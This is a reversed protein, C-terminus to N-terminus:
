CRPNINGFHKKRANQLTVYMQAYTDPQKYVCKITKLSLEFNIENYM